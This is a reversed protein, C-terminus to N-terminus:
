ETDQLPMLADVVTLVILYIHSLRVSLSCYYPCCRDKQSSSSENKMRTGGTCFHCVM